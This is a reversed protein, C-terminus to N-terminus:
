NSAAALEPYQDDLSSCRTSQVRWRPGGEAVADPGGEFQVDRLPVDLPAGSRSRAVPRPGGPASADVLLFCQADRVPVVRAVESSPELSVQLRDTYRETLFRVTVPRLPVRFVRHAGDEVTAEKAGDIFVSVTSRDPAVVHVLGHPALHRALGPTIGVVAVTLGAVALGRRRHRGSSLM